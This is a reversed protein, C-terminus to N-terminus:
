LFVLVATMDDPKIGARIAEEVIPRASQHKKVLESIDASGRARSFINKRYGQSMLNDSVGDSCILLIDGTAYDISRTHPELNLDPIGLYQTIAFMSSPESGRHSDDTYADEPDESDKRFLLVPSDGANATIIKRSEPFVRAASLTTGMNQFNLMRARELLQEHIDGLAKRFSNESAIEPALQRLAAIALESAEKGGEYGGVGDAVAFINAM